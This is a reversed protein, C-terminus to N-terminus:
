HSLHKGFFEELTDCLSEGIYFRPDEHNYDDYMLLEARGEGCVKCIREYVLTSNQYPVIADDHGQMILLPPINKHILELPSILKLLNDEHGFCDAMIDEITFGEGFAARKVGSERYCYRARSDMVSPGFMDCAAQVSDSYDEWGYQYGAYEPRDATFAMMLTLHGGASDGIMTFREPDLNYKEAHARTWRVATKVDYLNEPFHTEPLLRYDMAIVAYGRNLMDMKKAIFSERKSGLMWGGGHVDFLVPYPGDGKEPLYLDLLQEPLTGYQIDLFKNKVPTPDFPEMVISSNFKEQEEATMFIDEKLNINAEATM